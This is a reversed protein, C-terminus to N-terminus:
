RWYQQLVPNSMLWTVVLVVAGALVTTALLRWWLSLRAPAGPESGPVVSGADSQSRAGIPLIVFLCLWWVIFYIALWSGIQM